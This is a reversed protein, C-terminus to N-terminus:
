RSRALANARSGARSHHSVASARSARSARRSGLSSEVVGLAGESGRGDLRSGPLSDVVLLQAIDEPHGAILDRAVKGGFSHGHM